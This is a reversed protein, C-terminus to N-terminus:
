GRREQRQGKQLKAYEWCKKLFVMIIKSKGMPGMIIKEGRKETVCNQSFRLAVLSEEFASGRGLIFILM